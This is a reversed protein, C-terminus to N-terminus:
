PQAPLRKSAEALVEEFPKGPESDKLAHEARPGPEVTPEAAPSQEQTPEPASENERMDKLVRQALELRAANGLLADIEAKPTKWPFVGAPVPWAQWIHEVLARREAAPLRRIAELIEAVSM